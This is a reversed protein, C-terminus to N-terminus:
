KEVTKRESYFSFAVFLAILFQSGLSIWSLLVGLKHSNPEFRFEITHDGEPIQVGRVLYNTKHIPIEEGNLLAVWGAPYYIESLVLFGPESRSTEVTIEPGTYYTVIASSSSDPSSLAAYNEVVAVKSFDVKNSYLYDYAERPNDVSVTSDVFFAKPLVNDLEYVVGSRGNFVPTLGPINLGASYTIFKSNLMELLGLNIGFPGGFVPNGEAYFVEQIIGLKAATYGGLIPYYYAPTANSLPNDLLPFVRYPYVNDEFINQQIYNDLDRRQSLISKEPDINGAVFSNEPIYRQDVRILDITSILIFCILGLTGSLKSSVVLYIIGTGIILFIAFRVLDAKAKEEREPVLRSNVYNLAQQRVQPNEPNVQNQQAIQYAVQDVEGDKIFNQSNVFLFLLILIGFATGIPKYLSKISIATEMSSQMLWDIGYAAVVAFCFSTLVLWTEPARFKDFFPIYNFAFENLLLFNGGWSFLIALVGTGFFVYLVRKKVKFLAILSFLLTLIGLYHPGSTFTKPGWYDGGSGGFLNPILLTLTEKIGQSWGFAYSTDLGTTGQIASGGRMSYETYEQLVLLREANGMVGIFVGIILLGTLIGWNKLEKLKFAKQFDFLWLFGILYFFYYTIQPHGARLQLALSVSFLLLGILKKERRSLMWYGAIIWPSLSLAFFKSTHGAIIIIPFYTTLSYFISGLVATLPRFGLLILLVYMGSLMVWFQFAPYIKHFYKSVRDIHPVTHSLSIVYAPMGGFVNNAWLPEKDFKERYEIVSEASARWQTIDHRQLEKGGLTTEFFLIFPIIFLVALSIIHQRSRPLKYFFDPSDNTQSM